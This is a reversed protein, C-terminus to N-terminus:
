PRDAEFLGAGHARLLEMLEDPGKSKRPLVLYELITIGEADTVASDLHWRKSADQLQGEVIPRAAAPDTTRVRIRTEVRVKGADGDPHNERARRWARQAVGELQEASMNRLVENDIQAVFTGTRALQRARQLRREAMKGDLAVATRGFDTIWLTVILANFLLSIVLAVPLDVAAAIGVGTALFVYVADKSDDLTNRFRVAAVIGGLSFALAISYKVLVVIGAVVVPLVILLQVVSQQYGRKSRTLTYIWAVPLALLAAALMALTVTAALTTQDVGPAIIASKSATAGFSAASGFLSDLSAEAILRTRPLYKWALAGVTTLAVYYLAVRILVRNAAPTASAGNTGTVGTAM